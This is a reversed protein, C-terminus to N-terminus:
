LAVPAVERWVHRPLKFDDPANLMLDPRYEFREAPLAGSTKRNFIVGGNGDDGWGVFTGEGVLQLPTAIDDGTDITGDAIYIGQLSSVGPNINIEGSVVFGLFSGPDVTMDDNIDLDGDVFVTIKEGLTNVTWGTDISATGSLYVFEGAGPAPDALPSTLPSAGTARFLTEFHNYDEKPYQASFEDYHSVARWDPIAFAGGNLEVTGGNYTLLGSDISGSNLSESLLSGAPLVSTVDGAGNAGVDGGATQWWPGGPPTLAVYFNLTTDAVLAGTSRPSGGAPCVQQWGDAVALPDIVLDSLWTTSDIIDPGSFIHTFNTDNVTL